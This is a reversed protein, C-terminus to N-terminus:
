LKGVSKSLSFGAHSQNVHQEGGSLKRAQTFFRQTYARSGYGHM